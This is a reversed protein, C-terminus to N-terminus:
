LQPLCCRHVQYALQWIEVCLGLSERRIVVHAQVTARYVYTCLEFTAHVITHGFNTSTAVAQHLNASYLRALNKLHVSPSNFLYCPPKLTPSTGNQNQHDSYGTEHGPQGTRRKTM